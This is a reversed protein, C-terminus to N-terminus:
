RHRLISDYTETLLGVQFVNLAKIITINLIRKKLKWDDSDFSRIQPTKTKEMTPWTFMILLMLTMKDYLTRVDFSNFQPLLRTEFVIWKLSTSHWVFRIMSWHTLDELTRHTFLSVNVGAFINTKLFVYFILGNSCRRILSYGFAYHM